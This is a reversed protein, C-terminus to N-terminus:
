IIGEKIVAAAYMKKDIELHNNDYEIRVMDYPLDDNQSIKVDCDLERKFVELNHRKYGVLKSTMVPNVYLEISMGEAKNNLYYLVMDCILSSEVLEGLNSSYPGAVVDAKDNITETTQLGLRIIPIDYLTFLIMIDKCIKITEEITLPQYSKNNFLKELYTNRIVLTPYIRVFDAKMSIIQKATMIDKAYDDYPLGIMMQLGLKFPYKKIMTVASKTDEPTHGRSSATLVKGDMSQLGLEIATVGYKLLNQLIYDNIYDPRTSLRIGKIIGQDKYKKAVSLLENQRSLPIGTFSGGFFGVEIYSDHPITNLHEEIVNEAYEADVAQSSGTITYQDCYICKFPCGEQPVFIPITCHRQKM